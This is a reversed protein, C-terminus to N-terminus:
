GIVEDSPVIIKSIKEVATKYAEPNPVNANVVIGDNNVGIFYEGVIFVYGAQNKAVYIATLNEIDDIKEVM